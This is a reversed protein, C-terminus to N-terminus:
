EHYLFKGEITFHSYSFSNQRNPLKAKPLCVIVKEKSIILKPKLLDFLELFNELQTLSLDIM